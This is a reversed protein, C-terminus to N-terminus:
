IYSIIVKKALFQEGIVQFLLRQKYVGKKVFFSNLFFNQSVKINNIIKTFMKLINFIFKRQIKLVGLQNYFKSLIRKGLILAYKKDMIRIIKKSFLWNSNHVRSFISNSNKFFSVNWFFSKHFLSLNKIFLLRLDKWIVTSSLHIIFSIFHYYFIFILCSLIYIWIICLFYTYFLLSIFLMYVVMEKILFINLLLKNFLFYFISFLIVLGLSILLEENLYLLSFNFSFVILLLFFFM